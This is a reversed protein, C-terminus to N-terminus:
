KELHKISNISIAHVSDHQVDFISVATNKFRLAATEENSLEQLVKFLARKTMHHTVVFVVENKHKQIIEELFSKVRTVVDHVSEGHHEHTDEIKQIKQWVEQMTGGLQSRKKGELRGLYIANLREDSVVEVGLKKAITHATDYARSLQSSYLAHPTDQQALWNAIQEAQAKGRETLSFNTQGQIVGENNGESEGHRIIYLKM